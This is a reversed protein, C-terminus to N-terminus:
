KQHSKRASVIIGIILFLIFLVGVIDSMEAKFEVRTLGWATVGIFAFFLVAFVAFRAFFPASYLATFGRGQTTVSGARRRLERRALLEYIAAPVFLFIAWLAFVAMDFPAILIAWAIGAASKVGGASALRDINLLRRRVYRWPSWLVSLVPDKRRVTSFLALRYDKDAPNLFLAKRFHREASEADDLDYLYVNGIQYHTTDDDPNVELVRALEQVQARADHRTGGDEGRMSKITAILRESEASEPELERAKETAELATVPDDRQVCNWAYALWYGAEEPEMSLAHQFRDKAYLLRNEKEHM